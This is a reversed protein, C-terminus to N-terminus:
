YAPCDSIVLEKAQALTPVDKRIGDKAGAIKFTIASYKMNAMPTKLESVVGCGQGAVTTYEYHGACLETWKGVEQAAAVNSSVAAALVAVTMITKFM